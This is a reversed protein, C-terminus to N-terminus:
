GCKLNGSERILDERWSKFAGDIPAVEVGGGSRNAEKARDLAQCAAEPEAARSRAVAMVLYLEAHNAFKDEPSTLALAKEALAAADRNIRRATEAIGSPGGLEAYRRSPWLDGKVFPAYGPPLRYEKFGPSQILVAYDIMAVSQAGSHGREGFGDIAERFMQEAPMVRGVSALARAYKFNVYPDFSLPVGVYACGFISVAAVALTALHRAIKATHRVYTAPSQRPERASLRQISATVRGGRKM